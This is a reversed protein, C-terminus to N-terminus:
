KLCLDIFNNVAQQYQEPYMRYHKVHESNEFVVFRNSEEIFEENYNATLLVSQEEDDGDEKKQMLESKLKDRKENLWPITKNIPNLKDTNSGLLLTPIALLKIDGDGMLKKGYCFIYDASCTIVVWLTMLLFIIPMIVIALLYAICYLIFSWIKCLFIDSCICPSIIKIQIIEWLAKIGTIINMSACHTSDYIIGDYYLSSSSPEKKIADNLHCLLMGGGNSFAHIIVYGQGLAGLSERHGNIEALIQRVYRKGLCMNCYFMHMPLIYQKLTIKTTDDNKNKYDSYDVYVQKYKSVHRHSSGKPM